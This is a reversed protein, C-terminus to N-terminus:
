HESPLMLVRDEVHFHVYPIPFDTTEIAQCFAVDDSDRSCVVIGRGEKVFFEWLQFQRLWADKWARLQLIANSPHGL